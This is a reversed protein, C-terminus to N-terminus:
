PTTGLVSWFLTVNEGPVCIYHLHIENGKTPDFPINLGSWGTTGPGFLYPSIPGDFDPDAFEGMTLLDNAGGGILTISVANITSPATPFSGAGIHQDRANLSVDDNTCPVNMGTAFNFIRADAHQGAFILPAAVLLTRFLSNM